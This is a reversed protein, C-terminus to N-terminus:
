QRRDIGVRGVRTTCSVSADFEDLPSCTQRFLSKVASSVHFDREDQVDLENEMETLTQCM